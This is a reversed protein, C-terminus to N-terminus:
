QSGFLPFIAIDASFAAVCIITKSFREMWPTTCAAFMIFRSSRVGDKMTTFNRQVFSEFYSIDDTILRVYGSIINWTHKFDALHCAPFKFLSYRLTKILFSVEIHHFHRVWLTKLFKIAKSFSEWILKWSVWFGM